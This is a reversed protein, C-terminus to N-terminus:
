DEVEQIAEKTQPILNKPIDGEKLLAELIIRRHQSKAFEKQWRQEMQQLLLGIRM